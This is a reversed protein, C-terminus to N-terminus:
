PMEGCVGQQDSKALFVSQLRLACVGQLSAFSSQMSAYESPLRCLALNTGLRVEWLRSVMTCFPICNFSPVSVGIYGM